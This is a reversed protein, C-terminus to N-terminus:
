GKKIAKQIVTIYSTPIESVYQALIAGKMANKKERLWHLQDERYKSRISEEKEKSISITPDQLFSVPDIEVGENKLIKIFHELGNLEKLCYLYDQLTFYNYIDEEFDIGETFYINPTNGYKDFKDRDLIAVTDIGFKRYLHMCKLVSEAGDLKVIGVGNEDFDIGLRTAFSPFAGNETDGEVFLIKKSFMAEKLYIFNHLMHKYLKTNELPLNAGSVVKVMNEEKYMRIFQKYSHLLINPSHTVVFIQRMGLYPISADELISAIKKILSRQRYPHMHNEPEDILIYLPLIMRNENEIFHKKEQSHVFNNIMKYIKQICEEEKLRPPITLYFFNFFDLSAVNYQLSSNEDKQIGSIVQGNMLKIEIHIPLEPDYFDTPKFKKTVFFAYLLDLLNTKGINNEGLIFNIDEDFSFSLGHLNRYNKITQISKIKM